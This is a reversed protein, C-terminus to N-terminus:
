IIIFNQFSRTSLNPIQLQLSLPSVGMPVCLIIDTHAISIPDGSLISNIKVSGPVYDGIPAVQQGVGNALIFTGATTLPTVMWYSIEDRGPQNALPTHSMALIGDDAKYITNGTSNSMFNVVIDHRTQINGRIQGSTAGGSTIQVYLQNARLFGFVVPTLTLTEQFFGNSAALGTAFVHIPPLISASGAGTVPGELSIKTAIAVQHMGTVQIQTPSVVSIHVIGIFVSPQSVHHQTSPDIYDETRLLTIYQEDSTVNIPASAYIFKIYLLILLLFAHM